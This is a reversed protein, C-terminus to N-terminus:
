DADSPANAENVVTWKSENYTYETKWPRFRVPVTLNWLNDTLRVGRWAYMGTGADAVVLVADASTLRFIIDGQENQESALTYNRKEGSVADTFTGALADAYSAVTWKESSGYLAYAVLGQPTTEDGGKEMQVHPVIVYRCDTKVKTCAVSLVAALVMIWRKTMIDPM